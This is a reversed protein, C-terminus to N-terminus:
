RGAYFGSTQGYEVPNYRNYDLGSAGQASPSLSQNANCGALACAALALILPFRTSAKWIATFSRCSWRRTSAPDATDTM